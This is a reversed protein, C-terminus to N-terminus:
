AALPLKRNEIGSIKGAEFLKKALDGVLTETTKRCPELEEKTFFEEIVIYGQLPFREPMHLLITNCLYFFYQLTQQTMWTTLCRLLGDLYKGRDGNSFKTFLGVALWEVRTALLAPEM